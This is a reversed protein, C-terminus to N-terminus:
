TGSHAFTGAHIGLPIIPMLPRIFRRAGLRQRLDQETRELVGSLAEHVCRSTCIGADFEAVPSTVCDAIATLTERSSITHTVGSLAYLQDGLFSRLRAEQAIGPYPLHLLGLESLPRIDMRGLPRAILARTQAAVDARFCQVNEADRCLAFVEPAATQQLFATFFSEGASHRGKLATRPIRYADRDYLLVPNRNKAM